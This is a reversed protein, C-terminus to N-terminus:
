GLKRDKGERWAIVDFVRLPTVAAPLRADHHLRLLRQHLARDDKGLEVRLPEWQRQHTGTVTAVVKDWIPRLRPRKRAILKTAITTNVGRLGCLRKQLEWRDDELAEEAVLDRDEGLETLLGSFEAARDGLLAAAATAPVNVSLFTVAVLDDATFRDADAARTGTSDWGDFAAGVAAQAGTEPDGFYYRRLLELAPQDDPTSLAHPLQFPM